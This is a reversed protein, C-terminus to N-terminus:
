EIGLKKYRDTAKYKIYEQAFMDSLGTELEKRMKAATLPGPRIPVEEKPNFIENYVWESFDAEQIHEGYADQLARCDRETIWGDGHARNASEMVRYFRGGYKFDDPNTKMRAILMEAGASMNLAASEPKTTPATASEDDSLESNTM